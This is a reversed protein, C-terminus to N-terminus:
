SNAKSVDDQMQFSVSNVMQTKDENEKKCCHNQIMKYIAAGPVCLSPIGALIFIIAYIWGPYPKEELTPFNDQFYFM